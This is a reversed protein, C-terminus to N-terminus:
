KLIIYLLPYFPIINTITAHLYADIIYKLKQFVEFIKEPNIWM